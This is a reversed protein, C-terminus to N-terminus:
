PKKKGTIMLYAGFIGVLLFSIAIIREPLHLWFYKTEYDERSNSLISSAMPMSLLAFSLLISIVILWRGVLNQSTFKM